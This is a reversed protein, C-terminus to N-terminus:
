AGVLIPPRAPVSQLHVLPLAKPPPAEVLAIARLRLEEMTATLQNAMSVKANDPLDYRSVLYERNASVDQLHLITRKRLVVKMQQILACRKVLDHQMGRIASHDLGAALLMANLYLEIAHITLLRFPAATKPKRAHGVDFLLRASERYREALMLVDRPSLASGPYAPKCETEIGRTM